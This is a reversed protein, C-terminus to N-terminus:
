HIKQWKLQHLQYKKTQNKSLQDNKNQFRHKKIKTMIPGIILMKEVINKLIGAIFSSTKLSENSPLKCHSFIKFARPLEKEIAAIATAISITIANGIEIM